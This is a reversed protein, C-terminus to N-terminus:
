LIPGWYRAEPRSSAPWPCTQTFAIVSIWVEIKQFFRNSFNLNEHYDIFDCKWNKWESPGNVSPIFFNSIKWRDGRGGSEIIPFITLKGFLKKECVVDNCSPPPPNKWNKWELRSSFFSLKRNKVNRNKTFFVNKSFFITMKQLKELKWKEHKKPTFFNNHSFFTRKM